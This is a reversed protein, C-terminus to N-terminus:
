IELTVDTKAKACCVLVEGEKVFAVPIEDYAVQGKLLRVRCMGCFGSRCHTEVTLGKNEIQELLVNNSAQLQVNMTVSRQQQHARGIGEP